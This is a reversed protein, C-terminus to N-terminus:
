SWSQSRQATVLLRRGVQQLWGERPRKLSLTQHWAEPRWPRGPQKRAIECNKTQRVARHENPFQSLGRGEHEQKTYFSALCDSAALPFCVSSRNLQNRSPCLASYSYASRPVSGLGLLRLPETM